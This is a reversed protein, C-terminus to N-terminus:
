MPRSLGSPVSLMTVPWTSMDTFGEEYDFNVRYVSFSWRKAPLIEGTPVFWLGTDGDATTTAKRTDGNTMTAPQQSMPTQTAPQQSTPTTQAWGAAVCTLSVAVAMTGRKLM